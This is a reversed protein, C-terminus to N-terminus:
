TSFSATCSRITCPAIAHSCVARSRESWYTRRPWELRSSSSAAEQGDAGPEDFQQGVVGLEVVGAELVEPGGWREPAEVHDGGPDRGHPDGAQFGGQGLTLDPRIAGGAQDAM